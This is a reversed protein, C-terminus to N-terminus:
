TNFYIEDTATEEEYHRYAWDLEDEFKGLRRDRDCLHMLDSILDRIVNEMDTRCRARYAEVMARGNAARETNCGEPDPPLRKRSRKDARLKADDTSTRRTQKSM